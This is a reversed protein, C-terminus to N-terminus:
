PIAHYLAWLTLAAAGLFAVDLFLASIWLVATHSRPTRGSSRTPRLYSRLYGQEPDFWDCLLYFGGSWASLAFLLVFGSVLRPVPSLLQARIAVICLATSLLFVVFGLGAPKRWGHLRAALADYRDPTPM